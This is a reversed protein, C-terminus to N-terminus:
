CFHNWFLLVFLFTHYKHSTSAFKIVNQKLTTLNINVSDLLNIISQYLQIEINCFKKLNEYRQKKKNIIKWNGKEFELAITSAILFLFLGVFKM